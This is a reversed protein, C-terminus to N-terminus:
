CRNSWWKSRMGAVSHFELFGNFLMPAIEDIHRSGLVGAFVMPAIYLWLLPRPIFRRVGGDSLGRILYAGLTALLLLNLPNLGKMGLMEHPFLKGSSIPMLLILLVVGLRFDRLIFVCGDARRVTCANLDAVAVVSGWLVGLLLIGAFALPKSAFRDTRTDSPRADSTAATMAM